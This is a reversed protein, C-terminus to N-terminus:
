RKLGASLPAFASQQRSLFCEKVSARPAFHTEASGNM